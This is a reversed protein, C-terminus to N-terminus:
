AGAQVAGHSLEIERGRVDPSDEVDLGGLAAKQRVATGADEELSVDEVFEGASFEVRRMGADAIGDRAAVSCGSGILKRAEILCHREVRVGSRLASGPSDALDHAFIEM